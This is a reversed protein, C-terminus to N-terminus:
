WSCCDGGDYQCDPQNNIYDCYGDGIYSGICVSSTSTNYTYTYYSSTPNVSTVDDDDVCSAEPDVCAFGVVGCDFYDGDVCTSCPPLFLM